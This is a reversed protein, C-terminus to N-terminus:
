PVRFWSYVNSSILVILATSAIRYCAETWSVFRKSFTFGQLVTQTILALLVAAPPGILVGAALYLPAAIDLLFLLRWKARLEHQLAGAKTMELKMMRLLLIRGLLVLLLSLLLLSYIARPGYFNHAPQYNYLSWVLLGLTIVLSLIAIAPKIGSVGIISKTNVKTPIM